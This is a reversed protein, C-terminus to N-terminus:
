KLLSSQNIIQTNYIFLVDCNEFDVYEGLIQSSIYRLDVVTIKSYGELMLPVLSSGFSDRFVVLERKKTVTPNNIELFAAAGSLFVDYKDNGNLKAMDYVGLTTKNTELNFVTSNETSPSSLAYIEDSMNGMALRPSYVGKFDALKKISYDNRVAFGMESGLKQVTENISEQKWHSDTTFYDDIDLTSYIDIYKMNKVGSTYVENLRDYDLSPYGNKEALFYNKDPIVSYYCKTNKGELYQSYISNLKEAAKKVSEENLKSHLESIHGDALYIGNNDKQGLLKLQIQAKIGRFVDRLPFQDTMYDELGDFFSKDMVAEISFEPFKAAKRRESVLIDVPERLFCTLGLAVIFTFFFSVSIINRIKKGM